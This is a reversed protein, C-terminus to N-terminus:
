KINNMYSMITCCKGCAKRNADRIKNKECYKCINMEYLLKVKDEDFGNLEKSFSKAFFRVDGWIIMLQVGIEQHRENESTPIYFAIDLLEGFLEEFSILGNRKEIRDVFEVAWKIVDIKSLRTKYDRDRLSEKEKIRKIREKDSARIKDRNLERYAKRKLIKEETTLKKRGNKKEM